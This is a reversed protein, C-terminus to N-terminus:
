FIISEEIWITGYTTFLFVTPKDTEELFAKVVSLGNNKQYDIEADLKWQIEGQEAQAELPSRENEPWFFKIDVHSCKVELSQTLSSPSLHLDGHSLIISTKGSFNDLEIDQYTSSLTIEDCHVNKGSIGLNKGNVLINGTINKLRVKDYRNSIDIKGNAGDIDIFSQNSVIKVPGVNTLEIKEYSNEIDLAGSIDWGFIESYPSRILVDNTIDEMVLRGHSNQIETRGLIQSITVDSYSAEIKCDSEVQEIEIDDYRNSVILEGRINSVDVEGYRNTIDTHGVRETRVLGYSNVVTVNMREPVFIIFDTEIRKRRFEQRNTSINLTSGTNDINMKLLDAIERADVEEKRWIRKKFSITIKDEDSGFIEISGHSNRIRLEESLPSDIEEIEEFVFEDYGFLMSNGWGWDLDFEGTYIQTIFVGILIIFILLVIEKAKM